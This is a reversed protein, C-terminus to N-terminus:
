KAIISLNINELDIDSAKILENKQFLQDLLALETFKSKPKFNAYNLFRVGKIITDKTVSRFRMGGGNVHFTYAMYDLHFSGKEFWYIFVDNFDVGGGNKKFSIQIKYYEKNKIMVEPLLKKIVANDNLGLPLKSFYHVSNVSESYKLAMTDPISVIENDKSREFGENKLVDEILISDEIFIRSLRFNGNNRKAHYKKDRFHFALESNKLRNVGSKDIAKDVIQQATLTQNQDCSVILISLIFILLINKM